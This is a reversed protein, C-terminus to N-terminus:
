ALVCGRFQSRDKLSKDTLTNIFGCLTNRKKIRPLQAQELLLKGAYQLFLTLIRFNAIIPMQVKTLYLPNTGQLSWYNFENINELCPSPKTNILPATM